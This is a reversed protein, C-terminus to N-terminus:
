IFHLGVQVAGLVALGILFLQNQKERAEYRTMLAANEEKLQQLATNSTTQQAAIVDELLQKRLTAESDIRATLEEQHAKEWALRSQDLENRSADVDAITRLFEQKTTERTSEQDHEIVRIVRELESLQTGTEIRVTELLRRQEENAQGIGTAKESMDAKVEDLTVLWRAYLDEISGVREHMLQLRSENESAYNEVLQKSSATSEVLASKLQELEHTFHGYFDRFYTRVQVDLTNVQQTWRKRSTLLTLTQSSSKRNTPMSFKHFLNQLITTKKDDTLESAHTLIFGPAKDKYTSAVQQLLMEQDM